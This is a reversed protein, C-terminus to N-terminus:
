FRASYFKDNATGYITVADLPPNELSYYDGAFLPFVGNGLASGTTGTADVYVIGTNHPDAKFWAGNIITGAAYVQQYTGTSSVLTTGSSVHHSATKTTAIAPQDSALTVPLSNAATASGKAPIRATSNQILGLQTNSSQVTSDLAGGQTSLAISGLISNASTQLASTAAGAPLPLSDVSTPVPNSDSALTGNISVGIVGIMNSGAALGVTTNNALSIVGGAALAFTSGSSVAVTPTGSISVTGSVSAIVPSALTNGILVSAGATLGVTAGGALTVASGAALAITSGTSIGVTTNAALAVSSGAILSVTAGNSLAITSNAALAVTPTGSVSVTPTGSIAVSAGVALGISTGTALSLTGSVATTGNISVASGALLSVTPSNSINVTSTGDVVVRSGSALTVTTSAALGVVTNAALSVTGSASGGGGGLSGGVVTVPLPNSSSVRAGQFQLSFIQSGAGLTETSPEYAIKFVSSHTDRFFYSVPTTDTM